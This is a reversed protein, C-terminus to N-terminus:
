YCIKNHNNLQETMDSAKHGWPSCSALRGQGESDALTQEFEHENFWHHWGIMEDETVVKEEQGWDDGADPDKGTLQSKADPSWFIPAEAETDTRGIFTWLHNGKPNVPKTEKSELPSELTKWCWLKFVDIRPHEAKKITWGECGYM